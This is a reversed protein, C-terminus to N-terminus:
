TNRGEFSVDKEPLRDYMCYHPASEPDDDCIWTPDGITEPAYDVKPYCVVIFIAVVRLWAFL